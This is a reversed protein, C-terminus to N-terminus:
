IKLPASVCNGIIAGVFATIAAIAMPAYTEGLQEIQM